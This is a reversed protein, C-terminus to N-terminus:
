RLRSGEYHKRTMLANKFDEYRRDTPGSKIEIDIVTSMIDIMDDTIKYKLGTLIELRDSYNDADLFRIVDEDLEPVLNESAPEIVPAEAQEPKTEIMDQIKTNSVTETNQTINVLEFRYKQTVEPYKVHDVEEVFMKLPRVYFRYDGYLAQYVVMEEGTESHYAISQIQYMNGKFHRYIQQPLPRRAQEM